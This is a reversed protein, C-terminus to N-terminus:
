PQPLVVPRPAKSYSVGGGGGFFFLGLFGLVFM